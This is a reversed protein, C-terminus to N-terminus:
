TSDEDAARKSWTLGWTEYDTKRADKIGALEASKYFGTFILFSM